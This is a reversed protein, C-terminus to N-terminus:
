KYGVILREGPRILRPNSGIVNRNWNYITTYRSGSGLFRTSIGWLTDGSKVTYYIPTKGTTTTTPKPTPTPTPTPNRIPAGGQQQTLLNKIDTLLALEGPDTPNTIPPQGTSSPVNGTGQQSALTNLQDQLTQLQGTIDSSQGGSTTGIPSGTSSSGSSGRLLLFAGGGVVVAGGVWVWSKIQGTYPDRLELAM